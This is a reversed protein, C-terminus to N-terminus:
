GYNHSEFPFSVHSFPHHSKFRFSVVTAITTNAATNMAVGTSAAPELWGLSAAFGLGLFCGVMMEM